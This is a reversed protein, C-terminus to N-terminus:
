QQSEKPVTCTYCSSRYAMLPLFNLSMWPLIIILCKRSSSSSATPVPTSSASPPAPSRKASAKEKSSGGFWDDFALADDGSLVKNTAKGLKIRIDQQAEDVTRRDRAQTRLLTLTNPGQTLREKLSKGSSSEPLASSTTQKGNANVVINVAGGPLSKSSKRHGGSSHGSRKSSGFQRKMEREVKQRRIEDRTLAVSGSDEDDSLQQKRVADRAGAASVPYKPSGMSLKSAKKPGYLLSNRHEEEKKERAAEKAKQEAELREQKAKQRKEEEFIQLRLLRAQEREKAEREEQQKRQLAEKRKRDQLASQVAQQSERTHTASLAMLSAFSTM